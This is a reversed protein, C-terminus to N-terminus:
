HNTPLALDEVTKFNFIEAHKIGTKLNVGINAINVCVHQYISGQLATMATNM